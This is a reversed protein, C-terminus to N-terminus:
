EQERLVTWAWAYEGRRGTSVRISRLERVRVTLIGFDEDASEIEIRKPDGDLGIGVAKGAAEKACWFRALWEDREDGPYRDLLHREAESFAIAEFEAGRSEILAVDVGPSFEPNLTAIALAVGGVHSISLKPMRERNSDAQSRLWPRGLADHEIVLDAPYVAEGGLDLWLRRAAEKAAIKGWLRLSRQSESGGIATHRRREEPGLQVAELVDRWIPRGFDGPPELWVAITGNPADDLAFEQGILIRDPARFVDRYRNPWFFRWDEWGSLRMWTSGNKRVFDADVRVRMPDVEAVAIRCDVEDGEPPDDGFIDLSGLRLPFIVDGETLRDLGWCGLLHTFADLVVADANPEGPQDDRFLGRRPLVRISGDIGGPSSAGVRTLAKM